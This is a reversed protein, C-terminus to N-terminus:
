NAQSTPSAEAQRGAAGAVRVAVFTQLMAVAWGSFLIVTVENESNGLTAVVIGTVLYTFAIGASHPVAAEHAAYWATESSTTSRTRIGYFANRKLSRRAGAWAMHAFLAALLLSAGSMLLRFALM